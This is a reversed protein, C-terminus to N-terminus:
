GPSSGTLANQKHLVRVIPLAEFNQPFDTAGLQAVNVPRREWVVQFLAKAEDL